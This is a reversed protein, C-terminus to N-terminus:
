MRCTQCGCSTIKQVKIRRIKKKRASPCKLVVIEYKSSLPRCERCTKLPVSGPIFVSNCQGYCYNNEMLKPTCKPHTVNHMFKKTTCWDQVYNNIVPTGPDERIEAMIKTKLESIFSDSLKSPIREAQAVMTLLLFCFYVMNIWIKYSFFYKFNNYILDYQYNM